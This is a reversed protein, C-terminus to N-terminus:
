VSLWDYAADNQPDIGIIYEIPLANTAINIDNGDGGVVLRFREAVKDSIALVVGAQVAEKPSPDLRLRKIISEPDKKSALQGMMMDDAARHHTARDMNMGHRDFFVHRAAVHKAFGMADDYPDIAQDRRFELTKAVKNDMNPAIHIGYATDNTNGSVHKLGKAVPLFGREALARVAQVSTGHYGLISPDRRDIGKAFLDRVTRNELWLRFEM